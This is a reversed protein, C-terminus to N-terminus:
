HKWFLCANSNTQHYKKYNIYKFSHPYPEEKKTELRLPNIKFNAKCCWIIDRHYEIKYPGNYKICKAEHVYYVFTIHSWKWYKKYQSVGSNMNM